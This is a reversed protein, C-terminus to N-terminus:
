NSPRGAANTSGNCFSKGGFPSSNENNVHIPHGTFLQDVLDSLNAALRTKYRGIDAL